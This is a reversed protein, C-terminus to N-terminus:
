GLTTAGNAANERLCRRFRDALVACLESDNLALCLTEPSTNNHKM